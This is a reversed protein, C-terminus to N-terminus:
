SEQYKYLYSSEDGKLENIPARLFELIVERKSKLGLEQGITKWDDGHKMVLAILKQQDEYNLFSPKTHASHEVEPTFERKIREWQLQSLSQAEFDHDRLNTPYNGKQYCSDCLKM